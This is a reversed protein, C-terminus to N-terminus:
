QAGDLGPGLDKGAQTAGDVPVAPSHAAEQEQARDRRRQHMVDRFGQGTAQGQAEDLIVLAKGAVIGDWELDLRLREPEQELDFYVGAM